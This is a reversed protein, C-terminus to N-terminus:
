RRKIIIEHGKEPVGEKRGIRFTLFSRARLKFYPNV